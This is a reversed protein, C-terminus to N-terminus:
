STLSQTLHTLAPVPWPWLETQRSGGLYRHCTGLEESSKHQCWPPLPPSRGPICGIIYFGRMFRVDTESWKIDSKFSFIKETKLPVTTSRQHTLRGTPVPPQCPHHAPSLATSPLIFWADVAPNSFHYAPNFSIYLYQTFHYGQKNKGKHICWSWLRAEKRWELVLWLFQLLRSCGDSVSVVSVCPLLSALWIRVTIVTWLIFLSWQLIM